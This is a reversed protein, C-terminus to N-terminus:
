WPFLLPLIFLHFSILIAMAARLLFSATRVLFDSMFKFFFSTSHWIQLTTKLISNSQCIPFYKDLYKECICVKFKITIFNEFLREVNRSIEATDLVMEMSNMKYSLVSEDFVRQRITGLCIFYLDCGKDCLCKSSTLHVANNNDSV